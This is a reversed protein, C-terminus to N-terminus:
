LVTAAGSAVMVDVPLAVLEAALGPARDRQGEAIRVEVVINQGEVYGLERLGALFADSNAGLAGGSLYGVRPVKAPQMAQGPWRGCGGLLSLSSAGAGVVFQRRSVRTM